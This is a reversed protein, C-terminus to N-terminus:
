EASAEGEAHEHLWQPESGLEPPLVQGSVTVIKSGQLYANAAAKPLPIPCGKPLPRQEGAVTQGDAQAQAAALLAEHGSPLKTHGAAYRERLVQVTAPRLNFVPDTQVLRNAEGGYVHPTPLPHGAASSQALALGSLCYCTHYFDRARRSTAAPKPPHQRTRPHLSPTHRAPALATWECPHSIGCGM